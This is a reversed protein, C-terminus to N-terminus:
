GAAGPTCTSCKPALPLPPPPLPPPAAAAGPAAPAAAATADAGAGAGAAAALLAGWAAHSEAAYAEPHFHQAHETLVVRLDFHPALAVCLAEWKVAAVSGTVGVLLRPKRAQM